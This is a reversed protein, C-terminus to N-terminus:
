FRLTANLAFVMSQYDRDLQDSDNLRYQLSVRVLVRRYNVGLAGGLSYRDVQEDNPKFTAHEFDTNLDVFLVKSLLLHLNFKSGFAQDQRDIQVFESENWYFEAASELRASTYNLSATATLEDSLGVASSLHLTQTYNLKFSVPKSFQYSFGILWNPYTANRGTEYEVLNTGGEANVRLRPGFQQTLGLTVTQQNYDDGVDSRQDLFMYRATVLANTSLQKELSLSGTHGESDNAADIVERRDYLYGFVVSFSPRLKWRYEPLVTLHYVTFMNVLENAPSSNDRVDLSARSIDGNLRLTFPRGSFFLASSNTRQVDAFKDLNEENHNQYLKFRLSYDLAIDVSPAKYNLVVGPQVTTIWDSQTNSDTLFLNNTYARGLTMGPHIEVQAAAASFILSFLSFILITLSRLLKM